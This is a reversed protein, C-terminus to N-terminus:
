RYAQLICAHGERGSFTSSDSESFWIRRQEISRDVSAGSAQSVFVVETSKRAGM